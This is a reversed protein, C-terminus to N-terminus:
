PAQEARVAARALDVLSWYTPRYGNVAHWEAASARVRASLARHRATYRRNRLAAAPSMGEPIPGTRGVLVAVASYAKALRAPALAYWPYTLEDGREAGELMADTVANDIHDDYLSAADRWEAVVSLQPDYELDSPEQTEFHKVGFSALWRRLGPRSLTSIGMWLRVGQSAYAHSAVESCFLADADEHDMTFDYPIHAARARQLMATAARHPLVSDRLIPPIDRRPRLLMVRLKRDALYEEFTSITVGVEIHAEIVSIAKSEADVHVLAVHSFNGAYDNGRAILASTPYGGRSILIDGSRLEVGRAVSAPAASRVPTGLLLPPFADARQLMVEEVAARGGYLARYVRDRAIPVDMEWGISLHKVVERTRTYLGVFEDAGTGCAAVLPALRFFRAEVSDLAPASPELDLRRLQDVSRRLAAIERPLGRAAACDSGRAAVFARELDRWLSDRGWAFGTRGEPAPPAQPAPLPVSLVLLVGFAAVASRRGVRVLQERTLSM